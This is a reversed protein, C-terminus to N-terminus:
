HETGDTGCISKLLLFVGMPRIDMLGQGRVYLKRGYRLNLRAATDLLAWPVVGSGVWDGCERIQYLRRFGALEIAGCNTRTSGAGFTAM